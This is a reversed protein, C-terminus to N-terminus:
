KSLSPTTGAPAPRFGTPGYFRSVRSGPAHRHDVAPGGLDAKMLLDLETPDRWPDGPLRPVQNPNMAEVLRPTVLVVLETDNHQYKVSRFLAGLIPLDGLLPTVNKNATITNNLLGALAFTQGEALEVTTNVNRTTLGPVVFGNLTVSNTYDLQSVQPACQLRIRGDGLVTPTFNLQIGYQKYQITIASGGGGPQPVPVPFEGGALFSAQQGSIATLNPEALVRLLSNNRLATLFLEFSSSGVKGAGFVPVTPDVSVAGTTALSGMPSAGPGENIGAKFVGDTAFANFGFGQSISRDVEAFRVQLMIQQGGSVELFNLVSTGYPAAVAAIQQATNLDAVRGRLVISGNASELVVTAKPFMSKVQAELLRLDFGVVVDIVQSRDLDDWLILQTSGPKKATLLVESPGVLSVDAVDPQAVSVRKYPVRTTLVTSKNVMLRIMGDAGVGKTVLPEPVPQGIAELTTPLTTAPAPRAPISPTLDPAIPTGSTPAPAVPPAAPAPAAPATSPAAPQAVPAADIAAVSDTEAVPQEVVPQEASPQEAIPQEAIPASDVAVDRTPEDSMPADAARLIGCLASGAMVAAAALRLMREATRASRGATMNNTAVNSM